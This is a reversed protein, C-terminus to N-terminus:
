QTPTRNALAILSPIWIAADSGTFRSVETKILYKSSITGSKRIAAQGDLFREILDAIDTFNTIRDRGVAM